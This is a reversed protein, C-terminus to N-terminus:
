PITTQVDRDFRRALAFAGDIHRDSDAEIMEARPMGRVVDAGREVASRM